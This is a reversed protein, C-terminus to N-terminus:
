ISEIPENDGSDLKDGPLEFDGEIIEYSNIKETVINLSLKSQIKDIFKKTAEIDIFILQKQNDPMLRTFYSGRETYVDYVQQNKSKYARSIIAVERKGNNSLIVTSGQALINNKM